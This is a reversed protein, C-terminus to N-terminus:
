EIKRFCLIDSIRGDREEEPKWVAQVRSGEEVREVDLGEFIHGLITWEDGGDLRIYLNPNPVGLPDGTLPDSERVDVRIADVVTGKDALEVWNEEVDPIEVKCFGCVPKPPLIIRKCEPCKDGIILGEKLSVLFKSLYRGAYRTYPLKIWPETKFYEQGQVKM